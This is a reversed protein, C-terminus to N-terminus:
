EGSLQKRVDSPALFTVARRKISIMATHVDGGFEGDLNWSIPRESNFVVAETKFSCFLKHSFDLKILGSIIQQLEFFNKPMRILLVEFLGDDLQVNRGGFGRIGAVSDSNTVMGYLFDDEISQDAYKVTLHYAKLTNLHKTGELFYAVRGLLNKNVQATEYSTLAFAGFAACYVFFRDNFRGIDCPLDQGKTIAEIIETIDLDSYLNNAFDNTSGAPIYGIRPRHSELEMLGNIVENLTGDGGSCLLVDCHEGKKQATDTADKQNQTVYVEVDYDQANFRDIISLVHNKIQGKGAKANVIFLMKQRM